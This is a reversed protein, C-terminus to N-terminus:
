KNGSDRGSRLLRPAIRGLFKRIPGPMHQLDSLNLTRTMFLLLPYLGGTILCLIVAQLFADGHPSGFPAAYHQVLWNLAIGVATIIITTATLGIWRRRGLVRFRVEKRLALLNLVTMVIFCLCTAAIIGYIGFSPSLAYSAALKVAIGIAVGLMLPRMKGMGMLVAGSTQMVIQFIASITLLAIIPASYAEVILSGTPNGFIFGNIPGAAL